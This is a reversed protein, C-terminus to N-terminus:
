VSEPPSQIERYLIYRPGSYALALTMVRQDAHVGEIEAPYEALEALAQIQRLGAYAGTTYEVVLRRTM